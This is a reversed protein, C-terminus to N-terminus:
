GRARSRLYDELSLAASPKAAAAVPTPPAVARPAVAATAPAALEIKGISIKITPEPERTREIEARSPALATIPLAQVVPTPSSSPDVPAPATEDTRAQRRARQEEIVPERRTHEPATRIRREPPDLGRVEHLQEPLRTETQKVASTEHPFASPPVVKAAEPVAASTPETRGPTPDPILSPAITARAPGSAREEHIEIPAGDNAGPGFPAAGGFRLRPLAM